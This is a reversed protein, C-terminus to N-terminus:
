TPCAIPQHYTDAIRRGDAARWAAKYFLLTGDARRATRWPTFYAGEPPIRWHGPFWQFADGNWDWQGDIWVRGPEDSITVVEVRGPPPPYPIEVGAERPVPGTPPRQITPACGV